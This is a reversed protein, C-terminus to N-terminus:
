QWIGDSQDERERDASKEIDGNLNFFGQGQRGETAKLRFNANRVAKDVWNRREGEKSPVPLRKAGWLQAQQAKNQAVSVAVMTELVVFHFPRIKLVERCLMESERFRGQLCYLKSLRAYPELYTPDDHVLQTYIDEAKSFTEPRGVGAEAQVMLLEVARGREAYWIKKFEPIVEDGKYLEGLLQAEIERRKREMATWFPTVQPLPVQLHTISEGGAGTDPPNSEDDASASNQQARLLFRGFRLGNKTTVSHRM